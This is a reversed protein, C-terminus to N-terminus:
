RIDYGEGQIARTIDNLRRTIVRISDAVSEAFAVMEISYSDMAESFDMAQETSRSQYASRQPDATKAGKDIYPEGSGWSARDEPWQPLVRRPKDPQAQEPEQRDAFTSARVEVIPRDPMAMQDLMKLPSASFRPSEPRKATNAALLEDMTPLLPEGSMNGTNPMQPFQPTQFQQPQVSSEQRVFIPQQPQQVQPPAVQQQGVAQQIQPAERNDNRQVEIPEEVPQPNAPPAFQVQEMAAVSTTIQTVASQVAESIMSELRSKKSEGPNTTDPLIASNHNGFTGSAMQQQAAMAQHFDYERRRPDNM